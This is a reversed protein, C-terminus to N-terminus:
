LHQASVLIFSVFRAFDSRTRMEIWVAGQGSIGGSLRRMRYAFGRRGLCGSGSGADVNTVREFVSGRM